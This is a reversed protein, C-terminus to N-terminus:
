QQAGEGEGGSGGLSWPSLMMAANRNPSATLIPEVGALLTIATPSASDQGLTSVIMVAEGNRLESLQSNPLRALFRQLDPTGNGAGPWRPSQGGAGTQGPPPTFGGGARPGPANAAPAGVEGGASKLRMAIRQAMEAPLRKIQSDATVKVVVPSKAIADQVTITRAPADVATVTGAINRFTGSVIEEANIESGDASRNGRARLQDGPRIQDLPASRADDFKVSGPAYRRAITAKTTRVAINHTTGFGGSVITITGTATDVAKVLGGAGRKQWDERDQEQKASVDSQKMVIVSLAAIAQGESTQQGRVLVRDGPQLEEAQLPTANKLDREGPPVRLIKTTASLTATIGAGSDPAVTLSGAAISRITGVVRTVPGTTPSTPTQACGIAGGALIVIALWSPLAPLKRKSQAALM